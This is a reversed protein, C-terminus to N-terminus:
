PSGCVARPAFTVAARTTAVLTKHGTPRPVSCAQAATREPIERM